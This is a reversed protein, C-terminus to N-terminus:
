LCIPVNGFHCMKQFRELLAADAPQGEHADRGHESEELNALIERSRAVVSAPLGALQAVAIGYSKDAAGPVIRRLFAIGGRQERVLVCYNKM